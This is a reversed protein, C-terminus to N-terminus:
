SVRKKGSEMIRIADDIDDASVQRSLWDSGYKYGNDNEPTGGARSVVMQKETGANLTNLHNRDWVDVLKEVDVGKRPKCDRIIDRIQGCTANRGRGETGSMSFGWIGDVTELDQNRSPGSRFEMRLEVFCPKGDASTGVQIDATEVAPDGPDGNYNRSATFITDRARDVLLGIHRNNRDHEAPLPKDLAGYAAEEAARFAASGFRAREGGITVETPIGDEDLTLTYNIDGSLERMNITGDHTFEPQLSGSPVFKDAVACAVSFVERPVRPNELYAVCESRAHTKFQGGISAPAGSPQRTLTATMGTM